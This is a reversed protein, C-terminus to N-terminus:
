KMWRAIVGGGHCTVSVTDSIRMEIEQRDPPKYGAPLIQGKDIIDFAVKWQNAAVRGSTDIWLKIHNGGQDPYIAIKVGYTGDVLNVPFCTSCPRDENTHHVVEVQLYAKNKRIGADYWSGCGGKPGPSCPPTHNPGGFKFGIHNGVSVGRITAYVTAEYGNALGDFTQSWRKDAAENRSQKVVRIPGRAHFWKIKYQSDVEGSSPPMTPTPITNTSKTAPPDTIQEQQGGEDQPQEEQQPLQQPQQPTPFQFQSFDPFQLTPLQIDKLGPLVVKYIFYGTLATAGLTAILNIIRSM